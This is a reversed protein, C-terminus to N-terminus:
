ALWKGIIFGGASVLASLVGGWIMDVVTVIFPWDKIVAQNTLDYTGYAVVGFAAGMAVAWWFSDRGLAPNVVFLLVGAVFMAYFIFAATWNPREAMIYGLHNAYFSRAVVGLWVADILLFVLFSLAYLKLYYVM